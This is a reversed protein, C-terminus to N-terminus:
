AALEKAIFQMLMHGVIIQLDESIQMDNINNHIAFDASIKAKGGSFGLIAFSVMGIEKAQRLAQLINDSNGSGSLVILVDKPNAKVKLQHSFIKDYGIDNGLCTLVSSNAPLAEVNLSRLGSPDIGYLFDNALHIANGASGGNGCIFVQKKTNCCDLLHQALTEIMDADLLGIQECLAAQYAAMLAKMKTSGTADM